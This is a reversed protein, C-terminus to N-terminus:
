GVAAASRLTYVGGPTRAEFQSRLEPSLNRIADASLTIGEARLMATTNVAKGIVDFRKDREPGFEGAVAMAFHAKAELRCEWGRDTMARDVSAKLDILARVGADIFGDPFVALAADGIFKVVRGGAGEVAESVQRYHGDIVRAVDTDDVRQATVAFRTLDTFAILLPIPTLQVPWQYTM